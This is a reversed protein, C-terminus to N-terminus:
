IHSCDQCTLVSVKRGDRRDKPVMSYGEFGTAVRNGCEGCGATIMSGKRYDSELMPTFNYGNTSHWVRAPRGEKDTESTLQEKCQNCQRWDESRHGESKHFSCMTYRDHSRVCFKRSYSFLVYEEQNDCLINGCCSTRVLNNREGCIGCVDDPGIPRSAKQEIQASTMIPFRSLEDRPDFLLGWLRLGKLHSCELKHRPWDERQCEVGCYMVLTCQSCRNLTQCEAGKDCSPGECRRPIFLARDKRQYKKVLKEQDFRSAVPM